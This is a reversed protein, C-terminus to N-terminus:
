LPERRRALARLDAAHAHRLGAHAGVNKPHLGGGHPLPVLPHQVAGLHPDGVAGEVALAGPVGVQDVGLRALAAPVDGEEEDLLARGAEGQALLDVVLAAHPGGHRGLQDELVAAHRSRVQHAFLATSRQAHHPIKLDLPDRERGHAQADRPPAGLLHVPVRPLALGEARVEVGEALHLAEDRLGVRLVHRAAGVDVLGGLVQLQVGHAVAEVCVAHLEVTPDHGLIHGVSGDLDQAAVAVDALVVDLAEPPVGLEQLDAAAGVLGVVLVHDPVEGPLDVLKGSPPGREADTQQRCHSPRSSSRRAEEGGAQACMLSTSPEHRQTGGQYGGM